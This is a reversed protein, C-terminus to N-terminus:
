ERDGEKVVLDCGINVAAPLREAEARTIYQITPPGKHQHDWLFLAHNDSPSSPGQFWKIRNLLVVKGAFFPNFRFLPQRGLASDFDVRLLMAIRPVKLWLAHEIFAM